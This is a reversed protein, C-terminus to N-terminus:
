YTVEMRALSQLVTSVSYMVRQLSDQPTELSIALSRLSKILELRQKQAFGAALEKVQDLLQAAM